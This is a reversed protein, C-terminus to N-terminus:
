RPSKEQKIMLWGFFMFSFDTWRFSDLVDIIFPGFNYGECDEEAKFTPVTRMSSVMESMLPVGCGIVAWVVYHACSCM